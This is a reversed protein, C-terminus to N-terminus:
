IHMTGQVKNFSIMPKVGHKMDIICVYKKVYNKEGFIEYNFFLNLYMKLDMKFFDLM